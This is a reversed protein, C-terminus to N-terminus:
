KLINVSKIFEPHLNYKRINKIESEDDLFLDAKLMIVIGEKSPNVLKFDANYIGGMNHPYMLRIFMEIVTSKLLELHYQKNDLKKKLFLPKFRGNLLIRLNLNKRIAPM